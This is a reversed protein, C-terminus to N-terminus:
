KTGRPERVKRFPRTHRTGGLLGSFKEIHGEANPNQVDNGNNAGSGLRNIHKLFRERSKPSLDTVVLCVNSRIGLSFNKEPRSAM